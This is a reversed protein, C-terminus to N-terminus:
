KGEAKAIAREQCGADGGLHRILRVADRLAELMEPVAAVAAITAQQEDETVDRDFYVHLWMRNCTVTKGNRGPREHLAFVTANETVQWPAATHKAM